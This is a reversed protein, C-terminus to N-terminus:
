WTPRQLLNLPPMRWTARREKSIPPLSADPGTAVLYVGGTAYIVLLIGGAVVVFGRVDIHPFVTTVMLILSLVLLVSVIVSAVVNLWPPQGM